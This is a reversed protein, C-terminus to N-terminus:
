DHTAGTAKAIAARADIMQQAHEILGEDDQDSLTKVVAELAELLEPAAAILRATAVKHESCDIRDDPLYYGDEDRAPYQGEAYYGEPDVVVLTHTHELVGFVTDGFQNRQMVVM